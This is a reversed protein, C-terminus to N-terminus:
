NTRQVKKVSEGEDFDYRKRKQDSSEEEVEGNEGGGVEGAVAQVQKRAADDMGIEISQALMALARKRRELGALQRMAEKMLGRAYCQPNMGFPHQTMVVDLLDLLDLPIPCKDELSSRFAELAEKSM